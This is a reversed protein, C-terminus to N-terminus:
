WRGHIQGCTLTMNIILWQYIGEYGTAQIPDIFAKNEEAKSHDVIAFAIHTLLRNSVNHRGGQSSM